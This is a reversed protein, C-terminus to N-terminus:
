RGIDTNVRYARAWPARDVVLTFYPEFAAPDDLLMKAMLSRRAEGDMVLIEGSLENAVIRVRGGSHWQYQHFSGDRRIFDMTALPVVGIGDIHARGNELDFSTGQLLRKSSGGGAAGSDLKWHGFRTIWTAIRLNEWGVTLFQQRGTVPWERRERALSEVFAQAKEAGMQALGAVPDFPAVPLRLAQPYQPADDGAAQAQREREAAMYRMFQWAQLPSPTSHVKGLTYLVNGDQRAGDGLTDREAYYQAAYGFDWWQWLVADPEALRGVDDLTAAYQPTVVPVPDFADVNMVTPLSVVCLLGAQFVWHTRASDRYRVVLWSVIYALGLGVIVGSYMTFRTGLWGGVVGLALMPSLMLAAPRRWALALYGAIGVASMVWNGSMFRLVADPAPRTAERVSSIVSPLNLDGWAQRVAEDAPGLGLYKTLIISITAVDGQRVLVLAALAAVGLVATLSVRWRWVAEPRARAAGALAAGVIWGVPGALWSALTLAVVFLSDGWLGRRAAVLAVGGCVGCLGLAIVFGSGYFWTYLWLLAGLGVAGAPATRRHEWLGREADAADADTPASADAGGCRWAGRMFPTLLVYFWATAMLPFFLTLIDTDCFGVRTRIFFGPCAVALFGAALGAAPHVLRAALFAAPLAALAAVFPPMWFAIDGLAIGTAGHMWGLLLSLPQGALRSTGKAGAMWAYADHTGVIAEGGVRLDARLWAPVEAMHLLVAVASAVVFAVWVGWCEGASTVQGDVGHRACTM